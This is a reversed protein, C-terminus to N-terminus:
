LYVVDYNTNLYIIGHKGECIMKNTQNDYQLTKYISNDYLINMNIPMEYLPIKTHKHIGNKLLDNKNKYFEFSIGYKIREEKSIFINELKIKKSLNKM